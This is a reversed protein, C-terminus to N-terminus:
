GIQHYFLRQVVRGRYAPQLADVQPPFQGRVLRRHALEPMRQLLRLQELRQVLVQLLLAQLERLARDHVGRDQARGVRGLVAVLCAIGLHALRFFPM